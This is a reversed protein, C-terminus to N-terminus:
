RGVVKYQVINGDSQEKLYIDDPTVYLKEGNINIVKSGQPLEDIVDGDHLSAPPVNVSNDPNDSNDVQGNKGVVTYVTQGKSNRDEKYYTGNLEFLREGNLVVSRAGRPLASVTAGMPADVVEYTDQDPYQRYYIGNYYYFPDRGVFIRSYGFPLVSISLGPPPFLPQYYGDNLGYFLGENYYYPYGGFNISIFSRPISRYRPGYGFFRPYYAGRSYYSRNYNSRNYSGRNYYSGAYSYNNRRNYVDRSVSESAIRNGNYINRSTEFNNGRNGENSIVVDNRRQNTSIIRDTNIANARGDAHRSLAGVTVPNINDQRIRSNSNGPNYFSRNSFGGRSNNQVSVGSTRVSRDPQASINFNREARGPQPSVNFSRAPRDAGRSNPRQAWTSKVALASLLLFLGTKLKKM